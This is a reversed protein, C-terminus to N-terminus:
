AGAECRLPFSEVVEYKSGEPRAESNFLGVGNVTFPELSVKDLEAVLSALDKPTRVRGLTVHARFPRGEVSLGVETLAERALSAATKLEGAGTTVGLWIVSSRAISPFAGAGEIRVRFPTTGAFKNHLAASLEDVLPPYAKGIFAFTIHLNSAPVWRVAELSSPDENDVRAKERLAVALAAVTPPLPVALFLRTPPRRRGERRASHESGDM